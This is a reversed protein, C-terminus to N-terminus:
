MNPIRVYNVICGRQRMEKVGKNDLGLIVTRGDPYTVKYQRFLRVKNIPLKYKYSQKNDIATSGGKEEKEIPEFLADIEEQTLVTM